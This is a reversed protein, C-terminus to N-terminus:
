TNKHASSLQGATTNEETEASLSNFAAASFWCRGASFRRLLLGSSVGQLYALDNPASWLLKPKNAATHRRKNLKEAKRNGELWLSIILSDEELV